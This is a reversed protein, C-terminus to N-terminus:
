TQEMWYAITLRPDNYFTNEPHYAAHYYNSPFIILRNPIMEAFAIMEWYKEPAWYDYGNEVADPYKNFFDDDKFEYVNNTVKNKFFATGGSSENKTNLFILCTFSLNDSIKDHHPFAYNARKEKIQKFWNLNLGDSILTNKNLTKCIIEQTLKYLKKQLPPFSVRCDYYDKFNFGNPDYKWNGIPSNLVINRIDDFNKFIDDVVILPMEGIFNFGVSISLNPEFVKDHLFPQM